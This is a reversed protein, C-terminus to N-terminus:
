ARFSIPILHLFRVWSTGNGCNPCAVAMIQFHTPPHTGGTHSLSGHTQNSGNQGRSFCTADSQDQSPPFYFDNNQVSDAFKLWSSALQDATHDAADQFVQQDASTQPRVFELNANFPLSVKNKNSRVVVTTSYFFPVDTILENGEPVLIGTAQPSELSFSSPVTDLDIPGSIVQVGPCIEQGELLMPGALLSSGVLSSALLLCFSVVNFGRHLTIREKPQTPPPLPTLLCTPPLVSSHSSHGTKPPQSSNQNALSPFAVFPNEDCGTITFKLSPHDFRVKLGAHDTHAQIMRLHNQGFLLPWALHRVVLM